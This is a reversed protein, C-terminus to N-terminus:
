LETYKKATGAMKQCRMEVVPDPNRM